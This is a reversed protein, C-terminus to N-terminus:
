AMPRPAHLPTHSTYSLMNLRRTHMRKPELVVKAVHAPDQSDTTMTPRIRMAFRRRPSGWRTPRALANTPQRTPLHKSPSLGAPLM